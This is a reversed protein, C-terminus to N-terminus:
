SFVKQRLQSKFWLDGTRWDPARVLQDVSTCMVILVYIERAKKRVSVQSSLIHYMCTKMIEEFIRIWTGFANGQRVSMATTLICYNSSSNHHDTHFQSLVAMKIIHMQKFTSGGASSYLFQLPPYYVTLCFFFMKGKKWM